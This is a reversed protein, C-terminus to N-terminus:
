LKPVSDPPRDYRLCGSEPAPLLLRPPFLRPECGRLSVHLISSRCGSGDGPPKVKTKPGASSGRRASTDTCSPSWRDTVLPLIHNERRKPRLRISLHPSYLNAVAFLM